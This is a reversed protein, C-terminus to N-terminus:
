FSVLALGSAMALVTAMGKGALSSGASDDDDDGSAGSGGCTIVDDATLSM